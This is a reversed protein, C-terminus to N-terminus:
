VRPLRQAVSRVFENQSGSLAFSTNQRRIRAELDEQTEGLIMHATMLLADYV